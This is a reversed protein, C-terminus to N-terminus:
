ASGGLDFVTSPLVDVSWDVYQERTWGCDEVLTSWTEPHGYASILDSARRQSLGPRLSGAPRPMSSPSRRIPAPSAPM